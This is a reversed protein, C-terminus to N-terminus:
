NGEKFATYARDIQKALEFDKETLANKDHTTLSIKLQFAKSVLIDPHHNLADALVAVRQFFAALETQSGFVFEKTLTSNEENWHM